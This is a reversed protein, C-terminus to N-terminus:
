KRSKVKTIPINKIIGTISVSGNANIPFFYDTNAPVNSSLIDLPRAEKNMNDFCFKMTPKEMKTVEHLKVENLIQLDYGRQTKVLNYDGKFLELKVLDTYFVIIQECKDIDNKLKVNQCKSNLTIFVVILLMLVKLQVM